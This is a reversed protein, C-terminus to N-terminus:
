PKVPPGFAKSIEKATEDLAASFREVLLRQQEAVNVAVMATLITSVVVLTTLIMACISLIWFQPALPHPPAKPSPPTKKSFCPSPPAQRSSCSTENANRLDTAKECFPCIARTIGRGEPVEFPEGCGSCTIKM